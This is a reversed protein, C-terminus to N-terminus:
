SCPAARAIVAIQARHKSSPISGKSLREDLFLRPQVTIRQLIASRPMVGSEGAAAEREQHTDPPRASHRM